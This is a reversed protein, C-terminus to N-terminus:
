VLFKSSNMKSCSFIMVYRVVSFRTEVLVESNNMPLHFLQSHINHRLIVSTKTQSHLSLIRGPKSLPEALSLKM